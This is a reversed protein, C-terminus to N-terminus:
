RRGFGVGINDFVSGRKGALLFLDGNLVVLDLRVAVYIENGLRGVGGDVDLGFCGTLDGNSGVLSRGM